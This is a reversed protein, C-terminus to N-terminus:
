TGKLKSIVKGTVLNIVTLKRECLVICRQNDILKLATPHSMGKLTRVRTCRHYFFDCLPLQINIM